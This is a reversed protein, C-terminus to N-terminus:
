QTVEQDASEARAETRYINTYPHFSSSSCSRPARHRCAFSVRGDEESQRRQPPSGRKLSCVYLPICPPLHPPTCFQM